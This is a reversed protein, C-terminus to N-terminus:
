SSPEVGGSLAGSGFSRGSGLRDGSQRGEIVAAWVGSAVVLGTSGLLLALRLDRAVGLALAFGVVSLPEAYLM